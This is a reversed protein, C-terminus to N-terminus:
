RLIIKRKPAPIPRNEQKAVEIWQNISAHANKVAEIHSAGEAMCGALEPVLVIFCDDDESWYITIEYKYESM